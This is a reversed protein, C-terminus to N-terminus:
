KQQSTKSSVPNNDNSSSYIKPIENKKQKGNRKKKERRGQQRHWSMEKSIKELQQITKTERTTM